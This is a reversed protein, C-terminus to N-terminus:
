LSNVSYYAAFPESIGLSAVNPVKDIEYKDGTIEKLLDCLKSCQVENVIFADGEIIIINSRDILFSRGHGPTWQGTSQVYIRIIGYHYQQASNVKPVIQRYASGPTYAVSHRFKSGIFALSLLRREILQTKNFGVYDSPYFVFAAKHM